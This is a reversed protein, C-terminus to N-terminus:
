IQPLSSQISFVHLTQNWIPIFSRHCWDRQKRVCRTYRFRDVTSEKLILDCKM